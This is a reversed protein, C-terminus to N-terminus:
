WWSGWGGTPAIALLERRALLATVAQRQIPTPEHFGGELLNSLLRRPAGHRPEALEAFSRLPAPPASGAVQPRAPSPSPPPLPLPSWTGLQGGALACDQLGKRPAGEHEPAASMGWAGGHLLPESGQQSCVRLAVPPHHCHCVM